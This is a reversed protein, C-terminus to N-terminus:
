GDSITVAVVAAQDRPPSRLRATVVLPLDIGRSSWSMDFTVNWRDDRDGDPVPAPADIAISAYAAAVSIDSTRVSDLGTHPCLALTLILPSQRSAHAPPDVFRLARGACPSGGGEEGDSDGGGGGATAGGAGGTTGVADRGAGGAPGGMCAALALVLAALLVARPARRSASTLVAM